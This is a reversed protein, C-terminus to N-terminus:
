CKIPCPRRSEMSLEKIFILFRNKREYVMRFYRSLKFDVLFLLPRVLSLFFILYKSPILTSINDPADWPPPPPPLPTPPEPWLSLYELTPGSLISHNISSWTKGGDYSKAGVGEATLLNERKRLRGTHQQDLKSVPSPPLPHPLLWIKSHRSLM